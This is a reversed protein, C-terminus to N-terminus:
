NLTIAGYKIALSELATCGPVVVANRLMDEITSSGSLQLLAFVFRATPATAKIISSRASCRPPLSPRAGLRGSLDIVNCLPMMM